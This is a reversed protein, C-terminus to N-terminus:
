LSVKRLYMRSAILSRDREFGGRQSGLRASGRGGGRDGGDSVREVQSLAIASSNQRRSLFYVDRRHYLSLAGVTINECTYVAAFSDYDTDLIAYEALRQDSSPPTLPSM